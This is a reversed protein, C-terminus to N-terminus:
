LEIYWLCKGATKPNKFLENVAKIVGPHAPVYDHGCIIKKCKPLWYEIDRKVNEYTHSGDIFVMDISKDNFLKAADVSKMKKPVVNKM